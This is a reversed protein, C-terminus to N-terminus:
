NALSRNLPTMMELVLPKGRAAAAVKPGRPVIRDTIVVYGEDFEVLDALLVKQHAANSLAVTAALVTAFTPANRGNEFDGVKSATWNLGAARAYKALENQTVGAENRITRYNRGIVAAIALRQTPAEVSVVRLM